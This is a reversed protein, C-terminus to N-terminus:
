EDESLDIMFEEGTDEDEVEWMCRNLQKPDSIYKIIDEIAEKPSNAKTNQFELKVTYTTAM